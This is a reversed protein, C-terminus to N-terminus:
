QQKARLKAPIEDPKLGRVAWLRAARQDLSGGVKLRRAALETKLADVGLERLEQESSLKELDISPTPPLRPAPPAIPSPPAAAAPAAAGDADSGGSAAGAPAGGGAGGGVTGAAVDDDGEVAPAGEARAEVVPRAGDPVPFRFRANGINVRASEGRELSMAPYIGGAEAFDIGSFAAGLSKGNLYFTLSGESSDALCGVVDGAKWKEGYDVSEGSWSLQRAGDYSWSHEHDGVGDGVGANGVFLGDAWGVQALGGTLIEVEYYYRGRTVALGVVRASGFEARGDVEAFRAGAGGSAGSDAMTVNVDGAGGVSVMWLSSDWRLGTRRGELDVPLFDRGLEADDAVRPRKKAKAKSLGQHVASAMDEADVEDYTVHRAVRVDRAARKDAGRADRLQKLAEGRLEDEGHAFDCARGRPCGWWPPAGEPAQRERRAALWNACLTSKRKGKGRAAGGKKGLGEAWSPVDLFWGSLGHDGAAEKYEAGEEKRRKAEAESSWRKLREVNNVHRLRRGSLDRCAGFNTTRKAGAGKAAAKLMAGFGGKGGKLGGRLAVRLVAGHPVAVMEGVSSRIQLRRGNLALSLLHMPLCSVASAAELLMAAPVTARRADREGHGVCPTGSASEPGSNETRRLSAVTTCGQWELFLQVAM